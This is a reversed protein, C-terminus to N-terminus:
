QVGSKEPKSSYISCNGRSIAYRWHIHTFNAIVMNTRDRVRRKVSTQIERRYAFSNGVECRDESAELERRWTDACLSSLPLIDSRLLLAVVGAVVSSRHHEYCKVGGRDIIHPTSECLHREPLRFM